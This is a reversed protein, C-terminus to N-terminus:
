FSIVLPMMAQPGQARTMDRIIRFHEYNKEGLQERVMATGFSKAADEGLLDELLQELPPKIRPYHGVSIDETDLNALGAAAAIAEDLGALRDVLGIELARQGSYVRGQAIEKVTEMPLKRGEAVRQLFTAYIAETRSTLVAKEEEGLNHFPSFSNAHEMINVTDFTIGIKEEMMEEIIPFITFVGISGTITSPEAFISDAGAAIYYGGSAAVSGMSVVFPKGAAKLQEAAYWINESSSASGGGSNIRLVVAKVDDDQTLRELEEVYKKDGIGGNESEGDVITGEAILVAVQKNGRGKLKSMRAAFYKAISITNLKQDAELGVLEHLRTDVETVRKIGDILGSTVATEGKWGALNNALARVEDSSLGRAAAIDDILYTNMDGLYDRIQQKAEPSMDTRRFPETASKFKGAYFIEAKVGVEDMLKKFYANQAGLGRFDVVGLPGLYVEDGATALYYATQEYFPAYSVVFKGSTKFDEIAERILRLNTFGGAQMGQSMYIGKIDDDGKAREITRIIDHVGLIDEAQLSFNGFSNQSAVNNTLEPVMDLDLKLVSNAKVEPAEQGSSALGALAGFGIFILAGLALLTGLCSGLLIKFFNSM